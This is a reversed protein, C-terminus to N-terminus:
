SQRVKVQERTVEPTNGSSRRTGRVRETVSIWGKTRRGGRMKLLNGCGAIIQSMRSNSVSPHIIKAGVALHGDDDVVLLGYLCHADLMGVGAEREEM